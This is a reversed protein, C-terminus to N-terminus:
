TCVNLTYVHRFSGNLIAFTVTEKYLSACSTKCGSPQWQDFLYGSERFPSCGELFKMWFHHTQISLGNCYKVKMAEPTMESVAAHSCVCFNFRSHHAFLFIHCILNSNGANLCFINFHLIAKYLM